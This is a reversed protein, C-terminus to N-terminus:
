AEEEDQARDHRLRMLTALEKAYRQECRAVKRKLARIERAIADVLLYQALVPNSQGVTWRKALAIAKDRPVRSTGLEPCQECAKLHERVRYLTRRSTGMVEAVRAQSDPKRPRGRMSKQPLAGLLEGCPQDASM